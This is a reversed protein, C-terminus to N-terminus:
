RASEKRTFKSEKIPRVPLVVRFSLLGEEELRFRGGLSPGGGQGGTFKLSEARVQGVASRTGDLRWLGSDLAPTPNYGVVLELQLRDGGELVFTAVARTTAGSRKGTIHYSSVSRAQFAGDLWEEVQPEANGSCGGLLALFVLLAGTKRGIAVEDEM